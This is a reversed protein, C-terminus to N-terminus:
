DETLFNLQKDSRSGSRYIGMMTTNKDSGRSIRMPYNVHRGGDKSTTTM